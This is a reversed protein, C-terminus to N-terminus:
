WMKTLMLPNYSELSYQMCSVDLWGAALQLQMFAVVSHSQPFSFFASCKIHHLSHKNFCNQSSAITYM